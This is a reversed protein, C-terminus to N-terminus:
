KIAKFDNIHHDILETKNLYYKNSQISIYLNINESKGIVNKRKLNRLDASTIIFFTNKSVERLVVVYYINNGYEFSVDKIQATFVGNKSPASTKVQIHFTQKDKHAVIDMGVDVAVLAANYGRFLLESVVAYEGAKGRYNKNHKHGELPDEVPMQKQLKRKLTYYGRKYSDKNRNKVKSFTNDIKKSNRNLASSINQKIDETSMSVSILNSTQIQMAIEDVHLTRKGNLDFATQAVQIWNIM